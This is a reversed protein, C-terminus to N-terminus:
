IKIKKVPRFFILDRTLDYKWMNRLNRFYDYLYESKQLNKGDSDKYSFFKKCINLLLGM